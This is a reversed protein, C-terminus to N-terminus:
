LMDVVTIGAGGFQVHEDAYHSVGPVTALYQRAWLREVTEDSRFSMRLEPYCCYLAPSNSIRYLEKISKM